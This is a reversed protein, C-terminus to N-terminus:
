DFELCREVPEQSIVFISLPDGLFLKRCCESELNADSSSLTSDPAIKAPAESAIEIGREFKADNHIVDSYRRIHLAIRHRKGPGSCEDLCPSAIDYRSDSGGRAYRM